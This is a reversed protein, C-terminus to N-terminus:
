NNHLVMQFICKEEASCVEIRAEEDTLERIQLEKTRQESEKLEKVMEKEFEDKLQQERSKRASGAGAIALGVAMRLALQEALREAMKMKVRQEMFAHIIKEANGSRIAIRIKDAGEIKAIRKGDDEFFVILVTPTYQM